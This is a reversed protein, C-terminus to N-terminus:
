NYEYGFIGEYIIYLVIGCDCTLFQVKIIVMINLM